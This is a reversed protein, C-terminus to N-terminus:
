PLKELDAQSIPILIPHYIYLCTGNKILEIIEKTQNIPLAPCGFSRGIRGNKQIFSESVYDAGHIVIARKRANDNLGVSMGDIRLSYGHKGSYTEKTIFLGLSSKYSLRKNSFSQALEVGSNMGHAVLTNKVIRENKLDLIFLRRSESSKSFDIITLLSDNNLLNKMKLEYFGNLALNFAPSPIGISDINELWFNYTSDHVSVNEQEADTYLQMGHLYMGGTILILLIFLILRNM